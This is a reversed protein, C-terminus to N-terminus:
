VRGCKINLIWKLIIREDIGTDGLHHRKKLVERMFEKLVKRGDCAQLM